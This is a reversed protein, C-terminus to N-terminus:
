MLVKFHKPCRPHSLMDCIAEHQEKEDRGKEKAATFLVFMYKWLEGLKNIEELATAEAVNFRRGLNIVLAVAHVGSRALMIANGLEALREEDSEFDDCFGPTDILRVLRGNLSKEQVDSKSTMSFMGNGVEFLNKTKFIFNCASSKGAGTVGTLM